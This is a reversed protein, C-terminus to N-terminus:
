LNQLMSVNNKDTYLKLIGEIHEDRMKNNNTVKKATTPLTLLCLQM